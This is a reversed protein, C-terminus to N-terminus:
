DTSTLLVLCAGKDLKKLTMSEGGGWCSKGLRLTKAFTKTYFLENGRVIKVGLKKKIQGIKTKKKKVQVAYSVLHKNNKM